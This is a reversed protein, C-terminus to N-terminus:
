ILIESSMVILWALGGDVRMEVGVLLYGRM